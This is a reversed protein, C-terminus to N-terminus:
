GLEKPPGVQGQGRSPITPPPCPCYGQLTPTTSVSGPQWCPLILTRPLCPTCCVPTPPVLPQPLASCAPYPVRCVPRSVETYAGLLGVHTEILSLDEEQM